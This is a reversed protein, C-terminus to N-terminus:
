NFKKTIEVINYKMGHEKVLNLIESVKKSDKQTYCYATIFNPAFKNFSINATELERVTISYDNENPIYIEVKWLNEKKLKWMIAYTIYVGVINTVVTITATIYLDFGAVQKVIITYFGFSLANIFASAHPNNTKTMVLTKTTGLIVNITQCIAFLIIIKIMEM